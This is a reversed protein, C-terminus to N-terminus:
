LGKMQPQSNNHTTLNPTKTETTAHMCTYAITKLVLCHSLDGKDLTYSWEKNQHPWREKQYTGHNEGKLNKGGMIIISM